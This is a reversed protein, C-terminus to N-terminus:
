WDEEEVLPKEMFPVYSDAISQLTSKLDVMISEYKKRSMGTKKMGREEPFKDGIPLLPWLGGVHARTCRVDKIVLRSKNEKQFLKVTYEFTYKYESMSIVVSEITLPKLMIIGAEKDDFETVAKASKWREAVFLKSKSYVVDKTDELDVRIDWEFNTQSLSNLSIFLITTLIFKKM